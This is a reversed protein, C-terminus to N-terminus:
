RWCRVVSKFPQLKRKNTSRHPRDKSTGAHPQRLAVALLEPILTINNTDMRAHSAAAGLPFYENRCTLIAKAGPSLVEALAWFNDVMKQQDVKAAMEDFGDFIFLLRGMRNLAELVAFSGINLHEGDIDELWQDVYSAADAYTSQDHLAGTADVENVTIALPVYLRDIDATQVEKDLWAFYRSFDVGDNRCESRSTLTTRIHSPRRTSHITSRKL